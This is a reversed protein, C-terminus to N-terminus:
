VSASAKGNEFQSKTAAISKLANLDVNGDDDALIFDKTKPYGHWFNQPCVKIGYSLLAPKYSFSSKSTILLDACVMHLFSDQAGMNLCFHIDKFKEYELFEKREGQSFLYIALPRDINLNGIVCSLVKQFYSDDQWRMRLNPNNKGQGARIDGRRVHVALNFTEKAYILRDEKRAKAAYFKKKLDKMVGYQAFYFQDQEAIFIVRQGRYSDIIKKILLVEESSSENFLPILVKKYKYKDVLEEVAVEDEGFGFFSEWTPQAFPTHAFRVGLQRAFWYGAIWNALQHGIGAERHPIASFYNDQPVVEQPTHFRAHWYAKYLKPYYSQNRAHRIIKSWIYRKIKRIDELSPM